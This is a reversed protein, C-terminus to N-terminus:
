RRRRRKSIRGTPARKPSPQGPSPRAAPPRGTPARKPSPQGPSPRAAPPRGRPPQGAPPRVAPPRPGRGPKAGPSLADAPNRATTFRRLAEIEARNLRRATGPRLEGLRIPGIRVRGLSVVRREVAEMMERVERKRGETMVIRYQAGPGQIPRADMAKAVGSPLPVGSMLRRLDQARLPRDVVVVYEKEVGFSPHTLRHVLDGDNTLVVLGTSRLDLRGAIVLGPVRWAKPVIDVVTLRGRDDRVASLHGAPKNAVLYVMDASGPRVPAGNITVNDEPGVVQTLSPADVDNVAVSGSVILSACHRRSGVGAAVLFKVLTSAAAVPLSAVM